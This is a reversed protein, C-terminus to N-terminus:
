DRVLGGRNRHRWHTKGSDSMKNWDSPKAKQSKAAAETLTARALLGAFMNAQQIDPPNHITQQKHDTHPLQARQSTTKRTQETHPLQALKQM